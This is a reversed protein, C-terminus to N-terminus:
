RSDELAEVRATLEKIGELLLAVLRDYALTKYGEEDTYVVEEVIPEVEQAILGMQRHDSDQFDFTKRQLQLIKPLAGEIKQINSKWRVDSGSAGSGNTITFSITSGCYFKHGATTSAVQYRVAASNIGFGYFITASLPADNVANDNLVLLKNNSVKNGCSVVGNSRFLM